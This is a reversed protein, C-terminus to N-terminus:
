ELFYFYFTGGM